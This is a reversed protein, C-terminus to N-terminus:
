LCSLLVYVCLRAILLPFVMFKIIRQITILRVITNVANVILRSIMLVPERCSFDSTRMPLGAGENANVSFMSVNDSSFKLPLYTTSLKQDAASPGDREANVAYVAHRFLLGSLSIANIPM